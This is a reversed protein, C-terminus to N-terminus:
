KSTFYISNGSDFSVQYDSIKGTPLLFVQIPEAKYWIFKVIFM